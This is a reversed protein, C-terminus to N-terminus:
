NAPIFDIVTSNTDLGLIKSIKTAASKAVQYRCGDFYFKHLRGSSIAIYGNDLLGSISFERFIITDCAKNYLALKSEPVKDKGICYDVAYRIAGRPTIDQVVEVKSVSEDIRTAVM